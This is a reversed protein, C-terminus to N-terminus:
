PYGIIVEVRRSEVPVADFAVPGRGTVTIRARPVGAAVLQEAVYDARRRSLAQNFAAGGAPGAFGLVQVPVDPHRRALRAANALVARAPEDLETSDAEFFVMRPPQGVLERPDAACAAVLAVPLIAFARRRM